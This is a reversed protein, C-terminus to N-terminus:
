KCKNYTSDIKTFILKSEIDIFENDSLFKFLFSGFKKNDGFQLKPIQNQTKGFIGLPFRIM